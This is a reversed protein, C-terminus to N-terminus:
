LFQPTFRMPTTVRGSIQASDSARDYRGFRGVHGSYFFGPFRRPFPLSKWTIWLRLLWGGRNVAALVYTYVGEGLYPRLPVGSPATSLKSGTMAFGRRYSM